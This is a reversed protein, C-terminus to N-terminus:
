ASRRRVNLKRTRMRMKLKGEKLDVLSGDDVGLAVAAEEERKVPILDGLGSREKIDDGVHLVAGVLQVDLLDSM